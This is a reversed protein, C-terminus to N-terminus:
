HIHTVPKKMFYYGMTLRSIVVQFIMLFVFLIHRWTEQKQYGLAMLSLAVSTIFFNILGMKIYPFLWPLKHYMKRLPPLLLSVSVPVCFLVMILYGIYFDYSKCFGGILDSIILGMLVLQMVPLAIIIISMVCVFYVVAMIDGIKSLFRGM